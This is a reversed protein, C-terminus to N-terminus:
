DTKTKEDNMAGTISVQTHHFRKIEKMQSKGENLKESAFMLARKTQELALEPDNYTDEYNTVMQNKIKDSSGDAVISWIVFSLAFLIIGAAAYRMFHALTLVRAQKTAAPQNIRMWLDRDFDAPLEQKSLEDNFNGVENLSASISQGQRMRARKLEEEEALTTEGRWYKEELKKITDM